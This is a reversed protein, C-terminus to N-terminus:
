TLAERTKGLGAEHVVPQPPVRCILYAGYVVLPLQLAVMLGLAPVTEAFGPTELVRVAVVANTVGHWAVVTWLTRWRLLFGAYVIGALFTSVAVLTAEPVPRGMLVHVLHSGGFLLSSALSARIVGQRSDGWLRVFAYLIIGRFPIEEILGTMLANTAVATTVMPDSVDFMGVSGFLAYGSTVLDYILIVLVMVWAHLTGKQTVGASELWGFRWLMYLFFLSALARGVAETLEYGARDDAVLEGMMAAAIYWFLVMLTIFLGFLVPHQDALRKLVKM